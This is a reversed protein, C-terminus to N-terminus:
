DAPGSARVEVDQWLAAHIEGDDARVACAIRDGDEVIGEVFAEGIRARVRAGKPVKVGTDQEATAGSATM